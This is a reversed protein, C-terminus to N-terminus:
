YLCRLGCHWEGGRIGGMSGKDVGGSEPEERGFASGGYLVAAVGKGEGAEADGTLSGDVGQLVIGSKRITFVMAHILWSAETVM